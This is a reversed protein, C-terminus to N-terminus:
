TIIAEENTNYRPTAREKQIDNIYEQIAAAIPVAILIGLFGGLQAGVLIALIVVLPAVGLVKQVVLPYIINGQLQNVVVYLAITLLALSTGGDIFAVAVAPVAALISGFVPVLELLAAVIALLLAYPVGLILLGVYVMVGVILSLLLQGQLWRGMKHQARKWLDLIYEQKRMPTVMRLFDDLGRERVAFYFSLVIILIFSFLGGFVSSAVSLINGSSNKLFEQFEAIGETLSGAGFGVLTDQPSVEMTELYAPLADVFNRTETILQPVFLYFVFVLMLMAMLYLSIVSLIRPIGIRILRATAPEMASALVVATLVILILDRLYWALWFSLLILVTM